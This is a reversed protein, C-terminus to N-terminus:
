SKEKSPVITNKISKLSSKKKEVHEIPKVLVLKFVSGKESSRFLSLNANIIEAAKKAKALGLGSGNINEIENIRIFPEFIKDSFDNSIGIGNDSFYISVSKKDEITYINIEPIPSINYSFSNDLVVLLIKRLLERDTVVVIEKVSIIFSLKTYNYLVDELFTKLNFKEFVPTSTIVKNYDFLSDIFIEENNIGDQIIDFYEKLDDYKKGENIEKEIKDTFLNLVYIPSKLFQTSALSFSQIDDNQLILKKRSKILREGTKKLRNHSINTYIVFAFVFSIFLTVLIIQIVITSNNPTSDAYFKPIYISLSSVGIVFLLLTIIMLFLLIKLEKRHFNMPLAVLIFLYFYNLVPHSYYVIVALIYLNYYLFSFVKAVTYRNNKILYFAILISPFYITTALIASNNGILYYLIIAFLLVVISILNQLNFIKIKDNICEENDSRVGMYILRKISMIIKFKVHAKSYM